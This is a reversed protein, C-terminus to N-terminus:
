SLVEINACEMVCREAITREWEINQVDFNITPHIIPIIRVEFISNKYIGLRSVLVPMVRGLASHSRGTGLQRGYLNTQFAGKQHAFRGDWRLTGCPHHVWPIRCPKTIRLTWKTDLRGPEM